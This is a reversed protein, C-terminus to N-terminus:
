LDSYDTAHMLIIDIKSVPVDNEYEPMKTLTKWEPSDVFAKWHADHDAMNAFSTLYMLNPMHAGALVRGYFVANFNLRKFLAIEGGENFMKEKTTFLHETPSEYSRLEYIREAINNVLGSRGFRHHMPFADLLITEMREYPRSSAPANIFNKSTTVYLQDQPLDQTLKQWQSMSHFPIFVYIKKILSTDNSLPKFIGAKKIGARHIAPLWADKLYKEVSDVQATNKLSYIRIEYFDKIPAKKAAFVSSYLIVIVIVLIPRYRFIKIM